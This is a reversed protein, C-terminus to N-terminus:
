NLLELWHHVPVEAEAALHMQCGVNASAIVDPSADLLTALKRTRLEESLERQLVSYTGASGCCLHGDSVPVLEYGAQTLVASIGSGSQQGHQLTCPVQVAVRDIGATKTVDLKRDALYDSADKLKRVLHHATAVLEDDPDLLREYDRLTVGCGSATSIVAEVEHIHPRVALLNARIMALAREEEGLHLPLGGCCSEAEAYVVEVDHKALLKELANNVQPTAVQQVCGQLVLVRAVPAQPKTVTALRPPKEPLQQRLHRPLLWAFLRGLSSWRRLRDPEPLVRMMWGRLIRETIGRSGHRSQFDRSVELLEGFAVGSPCTTECARCTLCRDLHTGVVPNVTQSELMEKMLYIRGRPGDLEDGQVQYTPCTANCFGCHVCSRLIDEARRGKPTLRFQEPLSTQM